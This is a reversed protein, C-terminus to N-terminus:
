IGSSKYTVANPIPLALGYEMTMEIIIKQPAAQEQFRNVMIRGDAPNSSKTPDLYMYMTLPQYRSDFGLYSGHTLQTSHTNYLSVGQVDPVARANGGTPDISWRRDIGQLYDLIEYYNVKELYLTNLEYPYTELDMAKCFKLIDGVPDAADNDWVASGSVETIDNSVAKAVTVIDDNVKKALGFAARDLARQIEDIFGTERMVRPNIEIKYGFQNLVGHDFSISSMDITALQAEETLEAPTGMVGSSIDDGANTTDKAYRFSTADTRVERCINLFDLQQELKKNLIGEVVQPLLYARADMTVAM